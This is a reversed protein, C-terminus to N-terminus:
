GNLMEICITSFVRGQSFFSFTGWITEGHSNIWKGGCQGVARTFVGAVRECQRSLIGRGETGRYGHMVDM